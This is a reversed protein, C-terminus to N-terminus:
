YSKKEAVIGGRGGWREFVVRGEAPRAVYWEIAVGANWFQISAAAAALDAEQQEDVTRVATWADKYFACGAHAILVVRTLAHERILFSLQGELAVRQRWSAGGRGALCAAGGPVAVRDYRPLGLGEHLFEDMQEGFRGDSCYVAAAGVRRVDFPTRSAYVSRALVKPDDLLEM